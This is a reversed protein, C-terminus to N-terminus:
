NRTGNMLEYVKDELDDDSISAFGTRLDMVDIFAILTFREVQDLNPLLMTKNILEQKIGNESFGSARMNAIVDLPIQMNNDATMAMLPV